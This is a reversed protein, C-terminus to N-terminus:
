ALIRHCGTSQHSMPRQLYEAPIRSPKGCLGPRHPPSIQTSTSPGSNQQAHHSPRHSIITNCMLISHFTLDLLSTYQVFKRDQHVGFRSVRYADLRRTHRPCIRSCSDCHENKFSLACINSVSPFALSSATGEQQCNSRTTGAM